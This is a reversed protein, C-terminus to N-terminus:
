KPRKRQVIIDIAAGLAVCVALWIAMHHTTAGLAAGVGAGVALWVGM